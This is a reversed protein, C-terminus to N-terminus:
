EYNMLWIGLTFKITGRSNLDVKEWSVEPVGFTSSTFSFPGWSQFQVVIFWVPYMKVRSTSPRHFHITELFLRGESISSRYFHVAWFQVISQANVQHDSSKCDNSTLKLVTRKLGKQVQTRELYRFWFNWFLKKSSEWKTMFTRRIIHSM